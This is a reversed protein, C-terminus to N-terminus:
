KIDVYKYNYLTYLKLRLVKRANMRKRGEFVVWLDM